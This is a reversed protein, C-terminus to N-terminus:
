LPNEVDVFQVKVDYKKEIQKGLEIIGLRETNHHGAYIYNIGAEEAIYRTSEKADGTLYADVDMTVVQELENRGGGSIVYLSEIQDKGFHFYQAETELIRNVKEVLETFSMTKKFIGTLGIAREGEPTNRLEAGLGDLILRNHGIEPHFDLPLHYNFLNIDHELLLKFRKRKYGRITPEDNKWFLGHHVIIAAARAKVAAEIVELNISVATIINGIEVTGEIQLGNPIYDSILGVQLYNNLWSELERRSVV